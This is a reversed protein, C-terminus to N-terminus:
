QREIKQLRYSVPEDTEEMSMIRFTARTEGAFYDRLEVRDAYCEVSFGYGKKVDWVKEFQETYDSAKQLICCFQKRDDNELIIRVHKM